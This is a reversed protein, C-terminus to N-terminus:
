ECAIVFSQSTKKAVFFMIVKTLAVLLNKRRIIYRKTHHLKTSYYACVLVGFDNNSFRFAISDVHRAPDVCKPARYGIM